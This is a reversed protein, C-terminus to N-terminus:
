IMYNRHKRQKATKKLVERVRHTSGHKYSEWDTRKKTQYIGTIKNFFHGIMNTTIKLQSTIFNQALKRTMM